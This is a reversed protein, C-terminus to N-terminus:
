VCSFPLFILLGVVAIAIYFLSLKRIAAPDGYFEKNYKMNEEHQRKLEELYKEEFETM